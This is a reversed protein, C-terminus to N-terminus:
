TDNSQNEDLWYKAVQPPYICRELNAGANSIRSLGPMASSLLHAFRWIDATRLLFAWAHRGANTEWLPKVNGNLDV